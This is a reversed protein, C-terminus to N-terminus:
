KGAKLRRQVEAELKRQEYARQRHAESCYKPVTGRGHPRRFMGGCHQCTLVQGEFREFSGGARPHKLPPDLIEIDPDGTWNTRRGDSEASLTLGVRGNRYTTSTLVIHPAMAASPTHFWMVRDGNTLFGARTM